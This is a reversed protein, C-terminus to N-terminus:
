PQRQPAPIPASAPAAAPGSSEVSRIAVVPRDLNSPERHATEVKRDPSSPELPAPRLSDVPPLCLKGTEALSASTPRLNPDPMPLRQEEPLPAIDVGQPLPSPAEGQVPIEPVRKLEPLEIPEPVSEIQIEAVPMPKPIPLAVERSASQVMQWGIYAALAVLPLASTLVLVDGRCRIVHAVKTTWSGTPRRRIETPRRLHRLRLIVPLEGRSQQATTSTSLMFQRGQRDRTAAKGVARAEAAKM